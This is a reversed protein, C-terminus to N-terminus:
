LRNITDEFLSLVMKSLMSSSSGHHLVRFALLRGDKGIVRGVMIPGQPGQSKYISILYDVTPGLYKFWLINKKDKMAQEEAHAISVADTM